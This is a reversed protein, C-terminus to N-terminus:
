PLPFPLSDMSVEIKMAGFKLNECADTFFFQLAVKEAAQRAGDKTTYTVFAYGKNTGTVPNMMVRMDWITGCTEFLPILTDEFIDTPLHGIYVQVYLDPERM